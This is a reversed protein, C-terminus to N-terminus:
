GFRFNQIQHLIMPISLRHTFQLGICYIISGIFATTMLFIDGKYVVQHYVFGFILSTIITGVLIGVGPGWKPIMHRTTGRFLRYLFFRFFWEEAIAMGQILMLTDWPGGVNPSGTLTILAQPKWMLTVAQLVISVCALVVVTLGIHPVDEIRFPNPDLRVTGLWQPAWLTLMTGLIMGALAIEIGIAAVQAFNPSQNIYTTYYILILIASATAFISYMDLITENEKGSMAATLQKYLGTGTAIRPM